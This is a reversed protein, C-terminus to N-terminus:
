YSATLPYLLPAHPPADPLEKHLFDIPKERVDCHLVFANGASTASMLARLEVTHEKADTVHLALMRAEWNKSQKVIETFKDRIAAVPAREDVDIFASGIVADDIRIPRTM